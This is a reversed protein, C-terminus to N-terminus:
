NELPGRDFDKDHFFYRCCRSLRPLFYGINRKRLVGKWDIREEEM